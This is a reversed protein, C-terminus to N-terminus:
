EHCWTHQWQYPHQLKWEFRKWVDQVEILTATGDDNLKTLANSIMDRTDIWVFAQIRQTSQYERIAAIYLSLHKNAMSSQAPAILVEHLDRCDTASCIPILEPHAEPTLLQLSSITPVNIELFYTQLYTAAEIGAIKALAEAHM